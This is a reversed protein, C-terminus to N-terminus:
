SMRVCSRCRCKKLLVLKKLCWKMMCIWWERFSTNRTNRIKSVWWMALNRADASAGAGVKSISSDNLLSRFEEYGKDNIMDKGHNPFKDLWILGVVGNPEPSALQLMAQLNGRIDMEM